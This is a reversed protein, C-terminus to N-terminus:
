IFKILLYVKDSLAEWAELQTTQFLIGANLTKSTEKVIYEM